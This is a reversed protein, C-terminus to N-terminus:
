NKICRVTMGYARYSNFPGASAPRIQGYKAFISSTNSTWYCGLSSTSLSASNYSRYGATTWAENSGFAGIANLSAWSAAEATFEGLNPIRYGAPCVNNVASPGTWLLANQNIRWDSPNAISKIFFHHAPANSRVFTSGYRPTSVGGRLILEHGDAKRGWQFLSGYALFDTPSTAQQKPDFNGDNADAYRAGLNNNLWTKGTTANTVVGYIFDHKGDGFNRDPVAKPGILTSLAQIETATDYDARVGKDVMANMAALNDTSVGTIGADHYDLVTPIPNAHSQAYDAILDIAGQTASGGGGGCGAIFTAGLLVATTQFVKARLTKM